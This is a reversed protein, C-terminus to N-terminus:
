IHFLPALWNSVAVPIIVVMVVFVGAARAVRQALPLSSNSVIKATWFVGPQMLLLTVFGLVRGTVVEMEEHSLTSLWVMGVTGALIAFVLFLMDSAYSGTRSQYDDLM